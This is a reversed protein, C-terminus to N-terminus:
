DHCCFAESRSLQREDILFALRLNSASFCSAAFSLRLLCFVLLMGIMRLGFRRKDLICSPRRMLFRVRCGGNLGSSSVMLRGLIKTQSSDAMM